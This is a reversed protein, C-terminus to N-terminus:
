EVGGSWPYSNRATGLADISLQEIHGDLFIVNQKRQHPYLLREKELYAWHTYFNKGGKLAPGQTGNVPTETFLLTQEPHRIRRVNVISHSFRDISLRSNVGINLHYPRSSRNETAQIAPCTYVTDRDSGSSPIQLYNRFGPSADTSANDPRVDPFNGNHDQLYLHFGVALERLNKSCKALHLSRSISPAVSFCLTAIIAVVAVAVLLELLSFATRRSSPQPPPPFPTMASSRPYPLLPASAVTVGFYGRATPYPM